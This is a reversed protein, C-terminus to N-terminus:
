HAVQNRGNEKARYLAQDAKRLIEDPAGGGASSDALGISVTVSLTRPRKRSKAKGKKPDSPRKRPRKWSRLNFTAEEVALRVADAAAMAEERSRDPFILTFEEGGYRYATGERSAALRTAVLQLVQDGVDHGHTDNFKKFHDVDVMAVTYVGSAEALDRMLARRAPLQTLEDRYAMFYSQELVSLALVLGGAMMLFSSEGAGAWPHIAVLTLAQAWVLAREVPGRWRIAALVGLLLGLVGVVLTVDALRTWTFLGSPLLRLDGFTTLAVPDRLVATAVVVLAVGLGVQFLGARSRVGRDRTLALVGALGVLVTGLAAFSDWRLGGAVPDSTGVTTDLYGLAALGLVVRSRHFFAALLAGAVYVIIAYRDGVTTLTADDLLAMATAIPVVVLLGPAVV